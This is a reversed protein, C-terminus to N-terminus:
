AAEALPRGILVLLWGDAHRVPRCDFSFPRHITPTSIRLELDQIPKFPPAALRGLTVRDDNVVLTSAHRGQLGERSRGVVEALARNADVIRGRDDVIFMLDQSHDLVDRWLSKGATIEIEAMDPTEPLLGRVTMAAAKVSRGGDLCIATVQTLFRVDEVSYRRQNKATRVPTIVSHRREWARLTHASVGVMASVEGISFSDREIM